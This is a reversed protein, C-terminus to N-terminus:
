PNTCAGSANFKYTKNGIKRSTNALMAGSSEFFYWKGGIKQWGTVMAGSSNFFYWTNGLKQWGTVMAGSSNFFYWTNGLKQWGTVMAGSTNFFYWTNSLKQWGTVMAGSSNFFYWTNSLKQWGTVMAGSSNFFYWTNSLKQWGTVMIGSTNFFYWTNSLKQWGTVASGANFYYLKNDIKQWGTIDSRQKATETTKSETTNCVSCTRIQTSKDKNIDFATIKWDSWKHGTSKKGLITKTDTYTEGGFSITATYNIKEEETCTAPTSKSTIIAKEEHIHSSDNACVFTATASKTDTWKWIPKNYNHGLAKIQESKTKGCLTCTYEKSGANTCTPKKKVTGENYNHKPSDSYKDFCNDILGTNDNSYDSTYFFDVNYSLRYDGDTITVNFVDEDTDDLYLEDYEVDPRFIVCGYQGYYANNIYFDGDSKNTSFTWTKSDYLRKLVVKTNNSFASNKSVSWPSDPRFLMYPTNASPWAVTYGDNSYQEDHAYMATYIGAHGFGTSGMAPNLCWRRHGVRDINSSDEDLMWGRAVGDAVSCFGMGLNSKKAGQCGKLYLNNPMGDAMEPYHSMQDVAANCLAAAQAYDNYSENLLVENLGAVYRFCNLANLGYWKSKDSLSGKVFNGDKFKPQVYYSDALTSDFVSVLSNHKNEAIFPHRNIYDIIQQKTRYQANNNIFLNTDEASATISTSESFVGDPLMAASGFLMSAAMVFSLLRKKM